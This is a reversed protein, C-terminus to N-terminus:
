APCGPLCAVFIIRGKKRNESAINVNSICLFAKIIKLFESPRCSTCLSNNYYIKLNYHEFKELGFFCVLLVNYLLLLRKKFSHIRPSTVRSEYCCSVSKPNALSGLELTDHGKRLLFCLLLEVVATNILLFLEVFFVENKM